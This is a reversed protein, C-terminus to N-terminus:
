QLETLSKLRKSWALNTVVWLDKLFEIIAQHYYIKLRGKKKNHGTQKKGTVRIAYKRSFKCDTCLEDPILSKKAKTALFYRKRIEKLHESKVSNSYSLRKIEQNGIDNGLSRKVFRKRNSEKHDM